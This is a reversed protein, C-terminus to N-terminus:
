PVFAEVELVEGEEVHVALPLHAADELPQWILPAPSTGPNSVVLYRGPLINNIHFAGTGDVVSVWELGEFRPTVGGHSSLEWLYIVLGGESETISYNLIRGVLAGKGPEPTMYFPYDEAPTLPSQFAANEQEGLPSLSLSPVAEERTLTGCDALFAAAVLMIVFTRQFLLRNM